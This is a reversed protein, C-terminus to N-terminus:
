TAAFAARQNGWPDKAQGAYEVDLVVERSIDRITLEGYFRYREAGVKEVRKSEFRLNPFREADLFDPSRLHNDRDVVGTDISAAEIEVEVKSHTLDQEDIHIKGS